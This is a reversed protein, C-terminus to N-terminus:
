KKQSPPPPSTQPPKQGREVTGGDMAPQRPPMPPESRTIPKAVPEKSMSLYYVLCLSLVFSTATSLLLLIVGRKLAKGISKTRDTHDKIFAEANDILQRFLQAESEYGGEKEIVQNASPLDKVKRTLAGSLALYSGVVLAVLSFVAGVLFWTGADRMQASTADKLISVLAALAAVAGGSAFSAVISSSTRAQFYGQESQSVRTKELEWAERCILANSPRSAGSDVKKPVEVHERMGPETGTTEKAGATTKGSSEKM